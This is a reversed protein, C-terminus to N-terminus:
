LKPMNFKPLNSSANRMMQNYNPTSVNGYKKEEEKQRKEQEKIDANIDELMYEYEYFPMRDIESPQIHYEKCINLKNRVLNRIDVLFLSYTVSEM